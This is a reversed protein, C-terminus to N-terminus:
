SYHVSLMNWYFLFGTTFLTLTLISALGVAKFRQKRGGLKWSRLARLGLVAGGPVSLLPLSSFGWAYWVPYGTVFSDRNGYLMQGALFIVFLGALGIVLGPAAQKKRLILKITSRLLGAALLLIWFGGMSLYAALATSPDRWWPPKEPITIGQIFTMRWEGDVVRFFVQEGHEQDEFLDGGLPLFRRAEQTGGGPFVGTISLAEGDSKVTYDRVGLFRFWKGWGHEPGLIKTYSREYSHLSGSAGVAPMIIQESAAGPLLDSIAQIVRDHFPIIDAPANTVVLIGTNREPILAMKASYGDKLGSHRVSLLGNPLRSRFFGYGVGEAMPHETFRRGQMEDVSDPHLIQADGWSGGNLLAMMYNAWETPAVSVSGAGPLNIYSYPVPKFQGNEYQYSRAMAPSQPDNIGATMMGLPEFLNIRLYEGLSVGSVEEVILGALGFGTNSYAYEAGPSRVPPQKRFYSRLFDRSDEINSPSAAAVGYIAEDLGATHTLLHHLTVPQNQFMPIQFSSLYSNVNKELSLRGQDKLQLISTATLSKTLSGLPTITHDPDFPTQNDVDAYGYGKKFLIGSEQTVIVAAGPIHAQEMLKKVTDDVAAQVVSPSLKNDSAAASPPLAASWAIMASFITIWHKKFTHM